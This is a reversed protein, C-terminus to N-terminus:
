GPDPGVAAPFVAPRQLVRILTSAVTSSGVTAHETKTLQGGIGLWVLLGTFRRGEVDVTVEARDAIKIFPIGSNMEFEKRDFAM